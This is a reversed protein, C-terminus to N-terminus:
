AVVSSLIDVIRESAKGDGYPNVAEAMRKYTADNDLLEAVSTVISMSDTGVLKVVGAEIGEPRETVERMVLVPKGLSPAEEQVGGSDTLIMYSKSMLFIFQEYEVPEILHINPVGSLLENVPQQVSPNLHVPYVIAVDPREKAITKLATCISRFGAGFNERRHGTVLIMRRDQTFEIGWRKRFHDTLVTKAAQTGQKEKIMM